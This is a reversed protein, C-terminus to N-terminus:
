YIISNTGHWKSNLTELIQMIKVNTMKLSIDALTDYFISMSKNWTNHIRVVPYKFENSM